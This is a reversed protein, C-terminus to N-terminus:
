RITLGAGRSRRDRPPWRGADVTALFDGVLQNFLGPEELNCTHGTRPLMALASIPIARKLMVDVDICPEDEDGTVILTPVTLRELRDRLDYLSPRRMQVGRLTLAAGRGSHEALRRAFNAWGRPDKNQFQVRTPGLAYREAAGVPDEEFGAANAESEGQFRERDSPSAGYGCGAVVLSRARDPHTLGLHLACFGGMSLGVVHAREIGLHDLVAIADGVAREQSYADGDEPVDSPPYGRANYTVCRYRRSLAGVQPEWSRCDGAFEHIFLVPTGRGTDELHLRVGDGAAAFAM